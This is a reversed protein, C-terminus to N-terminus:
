LKYYPWVSNYNNYNDNLVMLAFIITMYYMIKLMLVTKICHWHWIEFHGHLSTLEYAGFNVDIFVKKQSTDHISISITKDKRLGRQNM